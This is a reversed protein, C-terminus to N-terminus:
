HSNLWSIKEMIAHNAQQKDVATGSIMECQKTAVYEVILVWNWCGAHDNYWINKTIKSADIKM